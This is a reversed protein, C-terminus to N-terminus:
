KIISLIVATYNLNELKQRTEEMIQLIESNLVIDQRKFTECAYNHPLNIFM